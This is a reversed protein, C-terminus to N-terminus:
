ELHGWYHITVYQYIGFMSNSISCQKLYHMIGKVMNCICCAQYPISMFDTFIPLASSGQFYLQMFTPNTVDWFLYSLFLIQMYITITLNAIYTLIMHNNM